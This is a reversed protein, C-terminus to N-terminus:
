AKAYAREAGYARKVAEAVGIRLSEISEQNGDLVVLIQNEM